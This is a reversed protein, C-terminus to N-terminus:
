SISFIYLITFFSNHRLVTFFVFLLLLCKYCNVCFARINLHTVRCKIILVTGSHPSRIPNSGLPILLLVRAPLIEKPVQLLIKPGIARRKRRPSRPTKPLATPPATLSSASRSRSREAVRAAAHRRQARRSMGSSRWACCSSRRTTSTRRRLKAASRLLRQRQRPM